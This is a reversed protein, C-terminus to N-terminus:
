DIALIAEENNTPPAEVGGGTLFTNDNVNGLKEV